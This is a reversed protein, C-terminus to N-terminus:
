AIATLVEDTAEDILSLASEMSDTAAEMKRCQDSDELNEPMNYLADLEDDMAKDILEYAKRLYESAATLQKRRALNM